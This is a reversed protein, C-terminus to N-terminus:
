PSEEHPLELSTEMDHHLQTFTLTDNMGSHSHIEADDRNNSVEIIITLRKCRLYVTKDIYNNEEHEQGGVHGDRSSEARKARQRNKRDRLSDLDFVGTGSM